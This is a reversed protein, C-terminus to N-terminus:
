ILVSILFIISYMGVVDDDDDDDDDGQGAGKDGQDLGRSSTPKTSSTVISTPQPMSPSM